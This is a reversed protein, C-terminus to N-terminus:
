RLSITELEWHAWTISMIRHRPWQNDVASINMNRKLNKGSQRWMNQCIAQRGHGLIVRAVRVIFINRGNANGVKCWGSLSFTEGMLTVLKATTKGSFLKVSCFLM